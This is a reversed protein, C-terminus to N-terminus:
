PTLLYRTQRINYFVSIQFKFVRQFYFAVDFTARNPHKQKQQRFQQQAPFVM